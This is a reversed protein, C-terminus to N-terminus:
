SAPTYKTSSTLTGLDIALTVDMLTTGGSTLQVQLNGVVPSGLVAIASTRDATGSANVPTQATYTPVSTLSPTFTMAYAGSTVTSSASPTPSWDGSSSVTETTYGSGNWITITGVSCTSPSAPV